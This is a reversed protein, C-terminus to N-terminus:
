LSGVKSRSITFLDTFSNIPRKAVIGQEKLQLLKKSRKQTSEGNFKKLLNQWKIHLILCLAISLKTNM